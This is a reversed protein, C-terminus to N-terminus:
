QEKWSVEYFYLGCSQIVIHLPSTSGQVSRKCTKRARQTGDQLNSVYTFKNEKLNASAIFKHVWIQQNPDTTSM